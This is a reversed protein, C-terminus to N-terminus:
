NTLSLIPECGCVSYIYNGEVQPAKLEKNKTMSNKPESISM